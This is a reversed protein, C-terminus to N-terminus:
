FAEHVQEMSAIGEWIQSLAHKYKLLVYMVSINLLESFIMQQHSYKFQCKYNVCIKM